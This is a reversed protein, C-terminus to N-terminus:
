TAGPGSGSPAAVQVQNQGPPRMQVAGMQGPAVPAAGPAPAAGRQQARMARIAQLQQPSLQMRKSGPAGPNPAGMAMPPPAKVTTRGVYFSAAFILIGGVIPGGWGSSMSAPGQTQAQPTSSAAALDASAPAPSPVSATASTEPGSSSTPTTTDSM